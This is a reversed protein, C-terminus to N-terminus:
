KNIKKLSSKSHNFTLSYLKGFSQILSRASMKKELKDSGLSSAPIELAPVFVSALFRLCSPLGTSVAGAVAGRM